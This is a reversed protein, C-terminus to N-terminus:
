PSMLISRILRFSFFLHEFLFPPVHGVHDIFGIQQDVLNTQLRPLIDRFVLRIGIHGKLDEGAFPVNEMPLPFTCAPVPFRKRMGRFEVMLM